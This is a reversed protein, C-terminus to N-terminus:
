SRTVPKQVRFQEDRRTLGLHWIAELQIAAKRDRLGTERASLNLLLEQLQATSALSLLGLISRGRARLHQGVHLAAERMRLPMTRKSGSVKANGAGDHREHASVGKAAPLEVEGARKAISAVIELAAPPPKM